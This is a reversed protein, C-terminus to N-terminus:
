KSALETPRGGLPVNFQQHQPHVQCLTACYLKVSFGGGKDQGGLPTTAKVVRADSPVGELTQRASLPESTPFACLVNVQQVTVAQISAHTAGQWAWVAAFPAAKNFKGQMDRAVGGGLLSCFM